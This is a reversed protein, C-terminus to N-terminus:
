LLLVAFVRFTLASVTVSFPIIPLKFLYVTLLSFLTYYGTKALPRLNKIDLDRNRRIAITPELLFRLEWRFSRDGAPMKTSESWNCVPEHLQLRGACYTPLLFGQSHLM